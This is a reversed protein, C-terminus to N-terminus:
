KSSLVVSRTVQTGSNSCEFSWKLYAEAAPIALNVTPTASEPSPPCVTFLSKLARILAVAGHAPRAQRDRPV